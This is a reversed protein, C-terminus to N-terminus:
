RNRTLDPLEEAALATEARMLRQRAEDVKREKKKIAPRKKRTVSRKTLSPRGEAARRRKPGAQARRNRRPKKVTSRTKRASKKGSPSATRKKPMAM